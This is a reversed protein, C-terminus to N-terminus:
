SSWPRLHVDDVRGATRAAVVGIEIEGEGRRSVAVDQQRARSLVKGDVRERM